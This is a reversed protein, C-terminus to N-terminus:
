DQAATSFVHSSVQRLALLGLMHQQTHIINGSHPFIVSLCLQNNHLFHASKKGRRYTSVSPFQKLPQWGKPYLTFGLIREKIAM